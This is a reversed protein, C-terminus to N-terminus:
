DSKNCITLQVQYIVQLNFPLSIANGVKIVFYSSM